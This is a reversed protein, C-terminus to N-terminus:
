LGSMMWDIGLLSFDILNVDGDGNLDASLASAANLTVNLVEADNNDQWPCCAGSAPPDDFFDIKGWIPDADDDFYEFTLTTTSLGTLVVNHVSVTGPGQFNGEDAANWLVTGGGDLLRFKLRADTGDNSFRYDFDVDTIIGTHTYSWSNKKNSGGANEILNWKLSDSNDMIMVANDQQTITWASFDADFSSIIVSKVWQVAMEKLDAPGVFCDGTIDGPFMTNCTDLTLVINDVFADWDDINSSEFYGPAGWILDNMQLYEFRLSTINPDLVQDVHLPKSFGGPTSNAEWLVNNDSGYPEAGDILRFKLRIGTPHTTIDDSFRWDFEIRKILTNPLPYNSEYEYFVGKKHGALLGAPAMLNWRLSDSNFAAMSPTGLLGGGGTDWGIVNWDSFDNYQFVTADNPPPEFTLTVNDVLADREDYITPAFNPEQFFGVPNDSSITGPLQMYEFRLTKANLGGVFEDCHYPRDEGPTANSATWLVSDADDVLQFVLPDGAEGGFRYDFTISTIRSPASIEYSNVKFDDPDVTSAASLNWELRTVNKVALDAPNHIDFGNSEVPGNPDLIGDNNAWAGFDDIFHLGGDGPDPAPCPPPPPPETVAVRLVEADWNDQWSSAAVNTDDFFDIKGLATHGAQGAYEFTLTTTSLGTLVVNHASVTGPGHFVADATFDHILAGGDGLLRFKLRDDNQDNAFRYDVEVDTITETHTYTWQNVKNAPGSAANETLNWVLSTTNTMTMVTNGVTGLTWACFDDTFVLPDPAQCPGDLITLSIVEADWNDQWPNGDPDNDTDDFFDTQGLATHGAKGQYEFTLTTTSLGTLVVNIESVTGPGHQPSGFDDAADWLVSNADDLLRFDLRNDNDDNAFRYDFEIDTIVETHTYTWQNVKNSAGSGADETLNWELSDTNDMLMVANGQLGISWASFDNTFSTEAFGPSSVLVAGLACLMLHAGIKKSKAM